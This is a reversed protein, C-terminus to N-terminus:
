DFLDGQRREVAHLFRRLNGDSWLPLSSDISTAGSRHAWAVRRPTGVRGIHCPIKLERALACWAAGTELKWPLTGGVFLGGFGDGVAGRVDAATMGDQTVLYWPVRLASACRELWGRSYALSDLGGAIGRCALRTLRAQADFTQAM